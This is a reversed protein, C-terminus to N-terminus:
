SPAFNPISAPNVVRNVERSLLLCYKSKRGRKLQALKPKKCKRTYIHHIYQWYITKKTRVACFYRFASWIYSLVM